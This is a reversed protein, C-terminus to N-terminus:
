VLRELYASLNKIPNYLADIEYDSKVKKLDAIATKIKKKDPAINYKAESIFRAAIGSLLDAPCKMRKAAVLGSHRHTIAKNEIQSAIGLIDSIIEQLTM